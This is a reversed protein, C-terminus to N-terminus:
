DLPVMNEDQERMVEELNSFQSDLGEKMGRISTNTAEILKKLNAEFNEEAKGQWGAQIANLIDQYKNLQDCTEDIAKANLSRLYAAAGTASYGVTTEGISLGM